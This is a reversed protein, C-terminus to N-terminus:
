RTNVVACFKDGRRVGQFPEPKNIKDRLNPEGNGDTDEITKSQGERVQFVERPKGLALWARYATPVKKGDIEICSIQSNNSSPPTSTSAPEREPSSNGESTPTSIIQELDGLSRKSLSGEDRISSPNPPNTRQPNTRESDECIIGISTKVKSGEQEAGLVALKEKTGEKGLRINPGSKDGYRLEKGEGSFFVEEKNIRIEVEAKGISLRLPNTLGELSEINIQTDCPPNQIGVTENIKVKLSSQEAEKFLLAFALLGIVWFRPNRMEKRFFDNILRMVESKTMTKKIFKLFNIINYNELFTM